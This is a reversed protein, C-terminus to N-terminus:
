GAEHSEIAVELTHTELFDALAQAVVSNYTLNHEDAYDKIADWLWGQERSLHVALFVKPAKAPPRARGQARPRLYSGM